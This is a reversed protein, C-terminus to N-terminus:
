IKLTDPFVHLIRETRQATHCNNRLPAARGGSPVTLPKV